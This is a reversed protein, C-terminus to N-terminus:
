YKVRNEVPILIVKEKNERVLAIMFLSNETKNWQNIPRM